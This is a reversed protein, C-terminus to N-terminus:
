SFVEGAFGGFLVIQWCFLVWQCIEVLAEYAPIGL